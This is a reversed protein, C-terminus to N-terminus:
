CTARIAPDHVCRTPVDFLDVGKWRSAGCMAMRMGDPTFALSHSGSYPQAFEDRQKGTKMDFIGIMADSTASSILSKGDDAFGVHITEQKKPLQMRVVEKGDDANWVVIVSGSGCALMKGDQSFVMKTWVVGKPVRIERFPLAKDAKEQGWASSAFGTLIGLLLWCKIFRAM